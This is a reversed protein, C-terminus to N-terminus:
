PIGACCFSMWNSDEPDAAMCQRQALATAHAPGCGRLYHDYFHVILTSASGDLIPWTAGVISHAGAILCTSRLDVREDGEYLFSESSSCASLSILPPLPALDRLQDLWIKGGHLVIGSVRGSHRDPSFHSAIHLWAFRAPPHVPQPEHVHNMCNLLEQWSAREEALIHGGPGLRSSLSAIEDRVFPLDDYLGQFRSLGVLLGNRRDLEEAQEARDWLLALTHLSAVLSPICLSVLPSGASDPLLAPWPVHHLIRHPAIILHTEPALEEVVERPILARGLVELDRRPPPQANRRASDCARLAMDLRKSVPQRYVTCKEATLFVTTLEEDTIYHDLAIWGRKLRANARQRFSAIEFADTAPPLTHSVLAKREQRAKLRDYEEIKKRLEQRVQRDQLASLFGSGEDLTVRLKAKLLDIEAKLAELEETSPGKQSASSTILNTLLTSQKSAEIFKLLDEPMEMQAAVHVIRDFAQAPTQLYSGALAPQRFNQRIKTLAQIGARLHDIAAPLDAQMQALTGLELRARWEIEPFIGEHIRLAEELAAKAQEPESALRWYVGLSIQCAAREPGIEMEEFDALAQKLYVLAQERDGLRLLAEGLLRKALASQTRLDRSELIHLSQELANLAKENHGQQFFIAARHTHVLSVLAKQDAMEYHSAALDLYHHAQEPQGLRSWISAIYKECTALRFYLRLLELREIARELYFLADQYRGVQGYAEGLNFIAVAASAESGLRENIAACEQFQEISLSPQGLLINLKGRDNLNDALLGQVEHLAFCAGAARYLEDARRLEGRIMHASGLNNNCMAQWLDLDAAEFLEAAREFHPIASHLHDVHLLYGLAIQYHAKAEEVPANQQEFVARAQELLEFAERFRDRRRLSGALTLWCRAQNLLDGRAEYAQESLHIEEVAAEHEGILIQAYALALRCRPVFEVFGQQQLALLAGELTRAAEVFGPRAWALANAQWDCAAIWGHESLQVFGRRALSIAAEARKPQTWYNCAVGLYWAALSQLFLGTSQVTSAAQAVRALAWGQRPARCALNEVQQAIQSLLEHDLGPLGAAAEQLEEETIQETYLRHALSRYPDPIDDSPM